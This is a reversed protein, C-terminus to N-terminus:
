VHERVIAVMLSVIFYIMLLIMIGTIIIYPRDPYLSADAMSPQTIIILYKLRQIAELRARELQTLNSKYINEVFELNFQIERFKADLESVGSAGGTLRQKEKDIQKNLTDIEAKLIQIVPSNENLERQKITLEGQKEILLRDLAGINSNIMAAETDTTLMQNERQFTILQNKAERVRMESTTLQSEFFRTQEQTVRANMNDVFTQSRALIANVMKQAYDRSFAEVHINILHSVTDYEVVVYHTMYKHFDELSAEPPLRSWWDIDPSSFHQRLQLQSELYQLMDLSNAFTVLTLADKDDAIAPLGIVTLDLSATNNNDQTISIAADSHFRDTAFRMLYVCLLALPIVFLLIFLYSRYGFRM